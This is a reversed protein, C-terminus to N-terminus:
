VFVFVDEFFSLVEKVRAVDVRGVLRKVDRVEASSPEEAEVM